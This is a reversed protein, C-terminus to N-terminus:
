LGCEPISAGGQSVVRVSRDMAIVFPELSDDETPLCHELGVVLRLYQDLTMMSPPQHHDPYCSRKSRLLCCAATWTRLLAVDYHSRACSHPRHALLNTTRPRTDAYGPVAIIPFDKGRVRRHKPNRM